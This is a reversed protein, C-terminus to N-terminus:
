LAFRLVAATGREVEEREYQGGLQDASADIVALGLGGPRSHNLPFGVGDDEMRLAFAGQGDPGGSVRIAGQGEPFAHDLANQVFENVVVAVAAARKSTVMAGAVDVDLSVGDPCISALSGVVNTMYEGLDVRDSANTRYMQDHLAAVSEIRQIVVELARKVEDSVGSRAQLRTLSAVSQLSNKVRHDVEHRLVEAQKLARRLELQKMVQRALVTLAQRQTETLQRPAYDLVCLTGIPLGEETILQAGAYFRLGPDGLCLANDRMRIDALTDPIEVFSDELIAHSCISTELPTERVGLGVEAKFWQRDADILNVVSIPTGCLVSALQVVDDFDKERASDLVDYSNLADLRESQLPHPDAIM